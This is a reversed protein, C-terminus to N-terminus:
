GADDVEKLVSSRLEGRKTFAASSVIREFHYRVRDALWQRDKTLDLFQDAFSVASRTYHWTVRRRTSPHAAVTVMTGTKHHPYSYGRIMTPIRQVQKAESIVPGITTLQNLSGGGIRMRTVVDTGSGRVTEPKRAAQMDRLRGTKVYDPLRGKQVFYGRGHQGKFGYFDNGSFTFRAALGPADQRDRWEILTAKQARTMWRHFLDGRLQDVLRQLDPMPNTM